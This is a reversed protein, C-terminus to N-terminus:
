PVIMRSMLESLDYPRNLCRSAPDPRPQQALEDIPRREITEEFLRGVHAAVRTFRSSATTRYTKVSM